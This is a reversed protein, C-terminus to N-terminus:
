VSFDADYSSLQRECSSASANFITYETIPRAYLHLAIARSNGLTRMAHLERDNHRLDIGGRRYHATAGTEILAFGPRAADDLRRYNQVELAGELVASWCRQGGHDHIPTEARPSWCLVLLEFRDDKYLLSRTYDCRREPLAFPHNWGREATTRLVESVVGIASPERLNLRALAQILERM